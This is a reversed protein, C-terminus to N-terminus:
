NQGRLQKQLKELRDFAADDDTTRKSVILGRIRRIQVDARARVAAEPTVAAVSDAEKVLSESTVGQAVAATLLLNLAIATKLVHRM